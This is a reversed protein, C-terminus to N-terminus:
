KEKDPPPNVEGPEKDDEDVEILEEDFRRGMLQETVTTGTLTHPSAHPGRKQSHSMQAKKSELYFTQVPVSVHPPNLGRRM